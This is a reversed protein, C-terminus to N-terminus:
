ETASIITRPDGLIFGLKTLETCTSSFYAKRKHDLLKLALDTIPTKKIIQMDLATKLKALTLATTLDAGSYDGYDQDNKVIRQSMSIKQKIEYLQDSKM